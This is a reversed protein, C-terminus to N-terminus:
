LTRILDDFGVQNPGPPPAASKGPPSASRAPAAPTSQAPVKRGVTTPRPVTGTAGPGSTSSPTGASAVVSAAIAPRAAPEAAAPAASAVVPSATAVSPPIAAPAASASAPASSAPSVEASPAIPTPAVDGQPASPGRSVFWRGSLRFAGLVLVMGTVGAAILPWGYHKWTASGFLWQWRAQFRRALPAREEDLADSVVVPSPTQGEPRAMPVTNRALGRAGAMPITRNAPATAKAPEKTVYQISAAGGVPASVPGIINTPAERFTPAKAIPATNAANPAAPEAREETREFGTLPGPSAADADVVGAYVARVPKGDESAKGEVILGEDHWRRRQAEVWRQVDPDEETREAIGAATVPEPRAEPADGRAREVRDTVHTHPDRAARIAAGIKQLEEAFALADPPRASADKSLASALLAELEPPFEGRRGLRPAPVTVAKLLDEFGYGYEDFPLRGTLCRYLVVGASYVDSLPGIGEGLMQEKSAYSPTGIFVEPNDAQELLKSIGWDLVKITRGENTLPIFINQPKVDRHIVGREHAHYLAQCLRTVLGIAQLIPMKRGERLNREITDHLTEGVLYPMVMYPM